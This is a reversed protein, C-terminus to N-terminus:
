GKPITQGQFFARRSRPSEGSFVEKLTVSHKPGSERPMACGDAGRFCLNSYLAWVTDYLFCVAYMM